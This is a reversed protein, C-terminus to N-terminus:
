RPGLYLGDGLTCPVMAFLLLPAYVSVAEDASPQM